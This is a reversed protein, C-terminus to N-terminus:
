SSKHKQLLFCSFTQRIDNTVVLLTLIMGISRETSIALLLFSRFIVLDLIARTLLSRGLDASSGGGVRSGSSCRDQPYSRFRDMWSKTINSRTVKPSNSLIQGGDHCKRRRRAMPRQPAWILVSRRSQRPNSRLGARQARTPKRM